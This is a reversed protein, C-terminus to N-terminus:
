PHPSWRHRRGRVSSAVRGFPDGASATWRRADNRYVDSCALCRTRRRNGCAKLFLREGSDDSVIEGTEHDVVDHRGYLRVPHACHHAKESRVEFADIGGPAAARDLIADVLETVAPTTEM